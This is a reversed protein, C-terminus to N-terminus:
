TIAVRVTGRTNDVGLKVAANIDDRKFFEFVKVVDEKFTNGTGAFGLSVIKTPLANKDKADKNFFVIYKFKKEQQYEAVHIAGIFRNLDSYSDGTEWSLLKPYKELLSKAVEAIQEQNTRDSSRVYKIGEIRDEATIRPNSFFANVAPNFKSYEGGATSTVEGAEIRRLMEIQDLLKAKVGKSTKGTRTTNVEPLDSDKIDNVLEQFSKATNAKKQLDELKSKHAKHLETDQPLYRRANAIFASYENIYKEISSLIATKQKEINTSQVSTGGAKASLIKNLEEYTSNVAVKGSGLAANNGKVEVHGFDFQLDGEQGKIADSIMTLALEGPGINADSKPQISWLISLVESADSPNVFLAKFKNSLLQNLSHVKPDKLLVNRIPNDKDSQLAELNKFEKYNLEVSDFARVVEFFVPSKQGSGERAWHDIELCKAIINNVSEDGREDQSVEARRITKLIQDAVENPVKYVPLQEGQDKQILIEAMGKEEGLVTQRPLLPV